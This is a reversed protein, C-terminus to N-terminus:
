ITLAQRERAGPAPSVPPAAGRGIREDTAPRRADPPIAPGPPAGLMRITRSSEMFFDDPKVRISIMITTAIM